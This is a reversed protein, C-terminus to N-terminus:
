QHVIKTPNHIERIYNELDFIFRSITPLNDQCIWQNAYYERGAQTRAISIFVSEEACGARVLQSKNRFFVPSSEPVQRMIQSGRERIEM